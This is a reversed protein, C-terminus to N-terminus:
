PRWSIFKWGNLPRRKVPVNLPGDKKLAYVFEEDQETFKKPDNKQAAAFHELAEARLDTAQVREGRLASADEDECALTFCAAGLNYQLQSTKPHRALGALSVERAPKPQGLRLLALGINIYPAKFDPDLLLAKEMLEVARGGDGQELCSMGQLYRTSANTPMAALSKRFHIDAMPWQGYLAETVGVSRDIYSLVCDRPLGSHNQITQRALSFLRLKQDRETAKMSLALRTVLFAGMEPFSKYRDILGKFSIDHANFLVQVMDGLCTYVEYLHDLRVPATGQKAISVSRERLEAGVDRVGGPNSADGGAASSADGALGSPAAPGESPAPAAESSLPLRPLKWYGGLWRIDLGTDRFLLMDRPYMLDKRVVLQPEQTSASGVAGRALIAPVPPTIRRERKFLSFAVRMTGDFTPRHGGDDAVAELSADEHVAPGSKPAPALPQPTGQSTCLAEAM